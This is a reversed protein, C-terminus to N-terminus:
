DHNWSKYPRSNKSGFDDKRKCRQEEPIYGKDLLWSKQDQMNLFRNRQHLYKPPLKTTETEPVGILYAKYDEYVAQDFEKSGLKIKDEDYHRYTKGGNEIKKGKLIEQCKIMCEKFSKMEQKTPIKCPAPLEKPKENFSELKLWQSDNDNRFKELSESYAVKFKAELVDSTEHSIAWSGIKEHCLLVLPHSFDKKICKQICEHISPVGSYSECIRIFEAISPPWELNKRCYQLADKISSPNTNDLGECWEIYWLSKFDDDHYSKVFKHDYIAALRVYLVKAHTINFKEM